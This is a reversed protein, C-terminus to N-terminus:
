RSTATTIAWAIWASAAGGALGLLLFPGAIDRATYWTNELEDIFDRGFKRWGTPEEDQQWHLTGGLRDAMDEIAEQAATLLAAAEAGAAEAREGATPEHLRALLEDLEAHARETYFRGADETCGVFGAVTAPRKAYLQDLKGADTALYEAHERERRQREREQEALAREMGKSFDSWMGAVADLLTGYAAGLAEFGNM